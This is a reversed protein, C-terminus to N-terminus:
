PVHDTGGDGRATDRGSRAHRVRRCTARDHDADGDDAEPERGAPKSGDRKAGRHPRAKPQEVTVAVNRADRVIRDGKTRGSQRGGRQAAGETGLPESQECGALTADRTCRQGAAEAVREEGESLLCLGVVEVETLDDDAAGDTCEEAAADASAASTRM